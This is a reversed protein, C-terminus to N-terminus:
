FQKSKSQLTYRRLQQNEEVIELQDNNLLQEVFLLNESKQRNYKEYIKIINIFSYPNSIYNIKTEANKFDLNLEGYIDFIQEILDPNLHMGRRCIRTIIDNDELQKKLTLDYNKCFNLIFMIAKDSKHQVFYSIISSDSIIELTKNIDKEFLQKIQKYNGHRSIQFFTAKEDQTFTM